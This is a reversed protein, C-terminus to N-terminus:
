CSRKWYDRDFPVGWRGIDITVGNEKAGTDTAVLRGTHGDGRGNSRPGFGVMGHADHRNGLDRTNEGGKTNSSGDELVQNKGLNGCDKRAARQAINDLECSAGATRQEPSQAGLELLGDDRLDGVGNPVHENVNQGHRSQSKDERDGQTYAIEGGRTGINHGTM